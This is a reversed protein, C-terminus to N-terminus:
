GARVTDLLRRLVGKTVSSLGEQAELLRLLAAKASPTLTMGEAISRLDQIRPVSQGTSPQSMGLMRGMRDVMMRDGVRVGRRGFWGRNVELVYRYPQRALVRVIRSRTELVSPLDVLDVIRGEADAFAVSLPILTDRNWFAGRTPQPFVFLMGEDEPLAMRGTLGRARAEPTNAVAM